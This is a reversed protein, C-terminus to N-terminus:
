WTKLGQKGDGSREFPGPFPNREIPSWTMKKGHVYPMHFECYAYLDVKLPLLPDSFRLRSVPFSQNIEYRAESERKGQLRGSGPAM